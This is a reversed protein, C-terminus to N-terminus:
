EAAARALCQPPTRAVPPAGDLWLMISFIADFLTLRLNQIADLLVGKLGIENGITWDDLDFARGFAKGYTNLCFSQDKSRLWAAPGPKRNAKKSLGAYEQSSHGHLSLVSQFADYGKKGGTIALKDYTMFVTAM